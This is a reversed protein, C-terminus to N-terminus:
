SVPMVDMFSGAQVNFTDAGVSTLAQFQLTGSATFVLMAELDLIRTLSAMANVAFFTGITITRNGLVAAAGQVSTVVTMIQCTSTAPGSLAFSPTGASQNELYTLRVKVRYAGAVVPCSMPSVLIGGTSSVTQASTSYFTARGTNYFGGDASAYKQQGGSSYGIIGSAPTNPTNTADLQTHAENLLDVQGRLDGIDEEAQELTYTDTAISM